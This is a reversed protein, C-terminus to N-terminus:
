RRKGVHGREGDRTADGPPVIADAGGPPPAGTFIRMAEGAQLTRVPLSGAIIRGVVALEASGARTDAARIAYGDMSSNPWPPLERRSVVPGAPLGGLTAALVVLGRGVLAMPSLIVELAGEVGM